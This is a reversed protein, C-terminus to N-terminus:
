RKRKAAQKAGQRGMVGVTKEGGKGKAPGATSHAKTTKHRGRNSRHQTTSDADNLGMHRLSRDPNQLGRIVGELTEIARLTDAATRPGFRGEAAATVARKKFNERVEGWFPSDLLNTANKIMAARGGNDLYARWAAINVINEAVPLLQILGKVVKQEAVATAIVSAAPDNVESWYPNAMVEAARVLLETTTIIAPAPTTTDTYTSM